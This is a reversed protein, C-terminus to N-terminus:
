EELDLVGVLETSINITGCIEIEDEAEGNIGRGGPLFNVVYNNCM